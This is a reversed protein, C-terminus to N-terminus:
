PNPPTLSELRGKKGRSKLSPLSPSIWEDGWIIFPHLGLRIAYRDAATFHIKRKNNLYEYVTPISCGLEEAIIRADPNNKWRAMLPEPSLFVTFESVRKTVPKRRQPLISCM